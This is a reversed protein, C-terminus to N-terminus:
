YESQLTMSFVSLFGEIVPLVKFCFPNVCRRCVDRTCTLPQLYYKAVSMQVTQEQMRYVAFYIWNVPFYVSLAHPSCLSIM